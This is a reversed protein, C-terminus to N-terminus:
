LYFTTLFGSFANSINEIQARNFFENYYFVGGRYKSIHNGHWHTLPDYDDFIKKNKITEEVKGIEFKNNLEFRKESKIDISFFAELNDYIFNFDDVFDEYKLLLVNKKNKINIVDNIGNNKFLEIHKQITTDTPKEGFRQMSSAICDLPHRYTVIIPIKFFTTPLTHTKLIKRCPFINKLLNYVLTSGSRPPSFQIIANYIFYNKLVKIISKTKSSIKYKSPM